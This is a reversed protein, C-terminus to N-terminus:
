VGGGGAVDKYRLRGLLELVIGVGVEEGAHGGGAATVRKIVLQWWETTPLM